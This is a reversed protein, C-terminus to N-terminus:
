PLPLIEGPPEAAQARDWAKTLDDKRAAAWDLVQRRQRPPLDGAIIEPPDIKIAAMQGQYKAHFHPPAHDEHFIMLVIGGFRCICPM